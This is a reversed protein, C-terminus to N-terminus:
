PAVDPDDLAADLGSEELLIDLGPDEDPVVAPAVEGFEAGLWPEDLAVGFYCYDMDVGRHVAGRYQEVPGEM